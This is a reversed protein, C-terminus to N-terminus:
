VSGGGEVVVVVSGGVVVVVSGGGDVVVVVSGGVIGVIGGDVVVVVAGGGGGGVVTGPGESPASVGHLPDTGTVQVLGDDLIEVRDAIHGLDLRQPPPFTAATEAKGTTAAAVQETAPEHGARQPREREHGDDGP